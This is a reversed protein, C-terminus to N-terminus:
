GQIDQLRRENDERVLGRCTPCQPEDVTRDPQESDYLVNCIRCKNFITKKKCEPNKCWFINAEEITWRGVKHAMAHPVVGVAGHLLKGCKECKM